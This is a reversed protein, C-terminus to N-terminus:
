AQLFGLSHRRESGVLLCPKGTETADVTGVYEKGKESLRCEPYSGTGEEIGGQRDRFPANCYEKAAPKSKGTYCWPAADGSPNGCFNHREDVLDADPMMAIPVATSKWPQCPSGSLTVNKRGIYEGGQQTMKYEPPVTPLLSRLTM